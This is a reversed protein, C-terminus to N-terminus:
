ICRVSPCFVHHFSFKDISEVSLVPYKRYEIPKAARERADIAITADCAKATEQEDVFHQGGARCDASSLFFNFNSLPSPTRRVIDKDAGFKFDDQVVRSDYRHWM